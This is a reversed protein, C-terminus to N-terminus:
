RITAILEGPELIETLYADAGGELGNIRDDRNVSTASLHVVPMGATHPDAKIRRCVEFGHVDPLNVDLLVLDPHPSAHVSKLAEGGTAAEKVRYGAKSLIRTIVYRKADDDDVNLILETESESQM